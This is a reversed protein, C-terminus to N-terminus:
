VRREALSESLYNTRHPSPERNPRPAEPVALRTFHSFKNLLAGSPSFDIGLTQIHDGMTVSTGFIGLSSIKMYMRYAYKHNFKSHRSLAVHWTDFQINYEYGCAMSM